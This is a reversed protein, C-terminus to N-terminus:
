TQMCYMLQKVYEYVNNSIGKILYVSNENMPTLAGVTETSFFWMQLTSQSSNLCNLSLDDHTCLCVNILHVYM